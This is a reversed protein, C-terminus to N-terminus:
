DNGPHCLVPLLFTKKILSCVVQICAGRNCVSLFNRFSFVILDKKLAEQLEEM